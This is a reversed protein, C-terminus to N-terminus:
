YNRQVIYGALQRLHNATSGYIELQQLADTFLQQAQHKANEMGMLAPYTPKNLAIDAGQRKGLTATSSEVDLIDDQIQFALGIHSAFQDLRFLDAPNANGALAGLQVAARILCGTKLAHMQQLQALTLNAGIAALDLAQGGVMGVSGSVQALIKLMELQIPANIIPVESLVSFALSQLADGVLIATAEDYARHCTPLGRRLDDNDMAPLDDHVLSYCHILELATAARDLLTADAQFITGTAYVLLPRIRKGGNLVAYRMAQHLRTPEALANPLYKELAVQIRTQYSSFIELNSM